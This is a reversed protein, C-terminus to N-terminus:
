LCLCFPEFVSSLYTLFSTSIQDSQHACEPLMLEFCPLSHSSLFCLFLTFPSLPPFFYISFLAAFISPSVTQVDFFVGVCPSAVLIFSVLSYIRFLSPLLSLSPPLFLRLSHFLLLRVATNTLFEVKDGSLSDTQPNACHSLILPPSLFDFLVQPFTRERLRGEKRDCRGEELGDIGQRITCHSSFVSPLFSRPMQRSPLSAEKGRDSTKEDERETKTGAERRRARGVHV